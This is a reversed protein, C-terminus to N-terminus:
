GGKEERDGKGMCLGCGWLGVQAAKHRRNMNDALDHLKGKSMLAEPLPAVGIAAALLRHVVVDAYRHAHQPPTTPPPRPKQLGKNTAGFRLATFFFCFCAFFFCWACAGWSLAPCPVCRRIPSTFHTYIPAALGYHHWEDQPFEGSCFYQAPFM